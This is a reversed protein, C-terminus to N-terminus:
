FYNLFMDFSFMDNDEDGVARIPAAAIVDSAGAALLTKACESITSGTTIIDDIILVRKGRIEESNVAEYMGVVNLARVAHNSISSQTKNNKLKRLYQKAPIGSMKSLHTAILESQDYGRKKLHSKSIPVWTMVDCSERLEPGAVSNLIEALAHANDPRNGFKLGLVAESSMDDSYRLVTVSKSFVNGPRIDKHIPIIKRCYPCIFNDELDEGCFICKVPFILKLLSSILSEFMITGWLTGGSM